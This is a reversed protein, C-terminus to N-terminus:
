DTCPPPGDNDICEIRYRTTCHDVSQWAHKAWEEKAAEYDTFPGFWEENGGVPERFCTDRYEGGVVYYQMM